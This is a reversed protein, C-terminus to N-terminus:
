PESADWAGSGIRPEKGLWLFMSYLDLMRRRVLFLLFSSAMGGVMGRCPESVDGRVVVVYL